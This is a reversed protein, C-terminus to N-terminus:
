LAPPEIPPPNLSPPEIPAAEADEQDAPEPLSPAAPRYPRRSPAAPPPSRPPAAAPAPAVVASAPPAQPTAPAAPPAPLPRPAVAEPAASEPPAPPAAPAPEAGAFTLVLFSTGDPGAQLSALPREPRGLAIQLEVDRRRQRAVVSRVPSPFFRTDLRRANNRLHIRCNRLFVSVGGRARAHRRSPDAIEYQVAGTTQLFVESSGEAMTFGTWILRPPKGGAKPLPNGMGSGPLVGAYSRARGGPRGDLPADIAPLAVEEALARGAPSVVAFSLLLTALARGFPTNM